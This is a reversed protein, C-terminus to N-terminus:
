LPVRVWRRAQVAVQIEIRIEADTPRSRDNAEHSDQDEIRPSSASDLFSVRAAGTRMRVIARGRNM